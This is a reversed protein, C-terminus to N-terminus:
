RWTGGVYPNQLQWPGGTEKESQNVLALSDRTSKWQQFIQRRVRQSLPGRLFFWPRWEALLLMTGPLIQMQGKFSFLFQLSSPTDIERPSMKWFCLCISLACVLASRLCPPHGSTNIIFPGPKWSTVSLCVQLEVKIQIWLLLETPFKGDGGM